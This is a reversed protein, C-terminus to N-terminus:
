ELVTIHRHLLLNSIYEQNQDNTEIPDGGKRGETPPFRLPNKAGQVGLFPLKLLADM